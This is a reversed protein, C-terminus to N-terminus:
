EEKIRYAGCIEDLRRMMDEDLTHGAQLLGYIMAGVVPEFRPKHLVMKPYAQKMREAYAEYLPKCYRFVSGTTGLALNEPVDLSEILACAEQALLEGGRRLIEIATEDGEKAARNVIPCFTGLFYAPTKHRYVAEIMGGKRELLDPHEEEIMRHLLTPQKIKTKTLIYSRAAQAGVWVGSGDDSMMYGWGGYVRKEKANQVYFIDSGTGSLACIGDTLGCALLGIVGEGAGVAQKYQVFESAVDHGRIMGQSLYIAEIEKPADPASFLQQMCDRFHAQVAEPAHVNGNIGGSLGTSHINGEEDFLIGQLKTGGGDMALYYRM